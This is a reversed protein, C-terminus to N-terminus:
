EEPVDIKDLEDILYKKIDVDQMHPLWLFSVWAETITEEGPDLSIILQDRSFVEINPEVLMEKASVVYSRSEGGLSNKITVTIAVAKSPKKDLVLLGKNIKGRCAFMYRLIEGSVSEGIVCNSIPYPTILAKTTPTSKRMLRTVVTEIWAIRKEDIPTDKIFIPKKM